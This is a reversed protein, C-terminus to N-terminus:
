RVMRDGSVASPQALKWSHPRYKGPILFWIEDLVLEERFPIGHLTMYQRYRETWGKPCTLVQWSPFVQDRISGIVENEVLEEDEPSYHVIGNKDVFHRIEKENLLTILRRNLDDDAFKFSLTLDM